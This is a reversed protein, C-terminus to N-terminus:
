EVVYEYYAATKGKGAGVDKDALWAKTMCVYFDINNVNLKTAVGYYDSYMMNIVAFVEPLEFQQLEPKQEMLQKVKEVPWHPGTTGDENEMHETWKEATHKDLKHGHHDKHRDESVVSWQKDLNDRAICLLAYDRINQPTPEGCIVKDLYKDICKKTIM